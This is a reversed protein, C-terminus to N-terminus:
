ASGVAARIGIPEDFDFTLDKITNGRKITISMRMRDRERANLYDEIGDMRVGNVFLLRDGERVGARDAPSGPFCFWVPIGDFQSASM